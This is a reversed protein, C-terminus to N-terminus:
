FQFFNCQPIKDAHSKKMKEQVTNKLDREPAKRFLNCSFYCFVILQFNLRLKMFFVFSVFYVFKQKIEFKDKQM